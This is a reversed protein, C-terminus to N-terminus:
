YSQIIIIGPEDYDDVILTTKRELEKRIDEWEPYDEEFFGLQERLDEVGDYESYDCCLGIVDLEITEGIDDSLNELYDFLLELGTYSFQDKRGMDVFAQRFQHLNVTQVITM